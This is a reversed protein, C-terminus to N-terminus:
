SLFLSRLQPMLCFMALSPPSVPHSQPSFLQFICTFLSSSSTIIVQLNSYLISLCRFTRSSFFLNYLISLSTFTLPFSSTIDPAEYLFPHFLLPFLIPPLSFPVSFFSSSLFLFIVPFHSLFYSYPLLLSHPTVHFLHSSPCIPSPIRFLFFLILPFYDSLCM